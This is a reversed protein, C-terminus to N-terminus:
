KHYQEGSLITMARYLQELLIVRALEHPFTLPSLSLREDCHQVLEPDLGVPGGILFAIDRYVGVQKHLYHALRDSSAAKGQADLAITWHVGAVAQELADAERMLAVHDSMSSGVYNRVEVIELETYRRIRQAYEEQAAEWHPTRLKGVAAITFTGPLHIM